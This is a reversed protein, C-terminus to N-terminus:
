LTNSFHELMIILNIYLIGEWDKIDIKMLSKGFYKRLVNECVKQLICLIIWIHESMHYFISQYM